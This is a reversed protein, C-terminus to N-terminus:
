GDSRDAALPIRVFVATGRSPESEITVTGGLMAVGERIGILGLGRERRDPRARVAEGDFGAGDDEVILRVEGARQEAVVSVRNAHAHKLVNTLTEQVVRYLTTEVPAVLSGRDLGVSQFDAKVGSRESWEQVCSQLADELGLDDLAAPRLDLAIRRVEQDIRDVLARLDDLRASAEPATGATPELGKLGITLAALHQGMQDHLRRSLRRREEEEAHVLQRLLETREEVLREAQKRFRGVLLVIASMVAAVVVLRRLNGDTYRLFSGPEALVYLDYLLFTAASVMGEAVGSRFTAYVLVLFGIPVPNPFALPSESLLELAAITALMVLPGTAVDRRSRAVRSIGRRNAGPVASPSVNPPDPALRLSAPRMDLRSRLHERWSM